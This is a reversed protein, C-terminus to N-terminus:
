LRARAPRQDMVFGPAEGGVDGLQGSSIRDFSYGRPM